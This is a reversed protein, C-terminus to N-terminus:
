ESSGEFLFIRCPTTSWSRSFIPRLPPIERLAKLPKLEKLSKLPELKTFALASKVACAADGQHDRIVGQVFWGLHKGNFGYVELGDHYPDPFLYAVPEGSWLYITMDQAIYATANGNSDFLSTEDQARLPMTGIFAVAVFAISLYAIFKWPHRIM